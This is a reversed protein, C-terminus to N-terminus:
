VPQRSSTDLAAIRYEPTEVLFYRGPQKFATVAFVFGEAGYYLDHNGCLSLPRPGAALLPRVLHRATEEITGGFYTDGLHILLDYPRDLHQERIMRLVKKQANGEYGADGIVAIRVKSSNIGVTSVPVMGALDQLAKDNRNLVAGIAVRIWRASMNRLEDGGRATGVAHRMAFYSHAARALVPDEYSFVGDPDGSFLAPNRELRKLARAVSDRSRRDEVLGTAATPDCMDKLIREFESRSM